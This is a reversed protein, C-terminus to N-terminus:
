FFDNDKKEVLDVKGWNLDDWISVLKDVYTGDFEAARDIYQNVFNVIEVPDEDQGKLAMTDFGFPNKLLYVFLIKDGDDLPPITDLKYLGLLKNYNMASKVHIPISKTAQAYKRMEKVSTPKMIDFLPAKMFDKRFLRTRENLEAATADHLIKVIIEWMEKRFIKPFSSRVTDFGKIEIEDVRLGKKSIIHMAYRKKASGWFARKGVMEQKIKWFHQGVCHYQRAYIAYSRNIIDELEKAIELTKDVMEDDTFDSSPFRHRILPEAEFFCSDTDQYICYDADPVKIAARYYKNGVDASWQVLTQGTLTVSEGNEKDYLRFSPLLLVGYLSNLKIKEILQKRDYYVYGASNGSNHEAEAQKRFRARNDGWTMLLTPIVGVHSTDYVIGASSISFQNKHLYDRLEVSTAFKISTEKNGADFLDEGVFEKKYLFLVWPCAVNNAFKHIDFNLIKGRKTEPSINLTKINNPYESELDLDYCFKYIGVKPPKVFAGIAKEADKDRTTTFAVKGIRKCHTLVAGDLYRSSFLYEDYPVHGDHCVGRAIEILDMKKDLAVMLEVDTVNYEIFGSINEAFLKDLSGTYTYKGRKLEKQCIYELSYSPEESYTFKKYLQMYDLFAVGAIKFTIDRKSVEKFDVIGIPSLKNAIKTGLVQSIRNYTYPIDFVEGNWATVITPRIKTWHTIFGQLLESETKFSIVNADITNGAINVSQKSNGIRSHEDLLLIVYKGGYYYAISTIRNAADKPTSYRIGKEIEIDFFLVRHDKSPEDSDCYMDVLVRTGVPVDHEFMAGIKVSEDSWKTVRKVRYGNLTEYDGTPDIIYAYQEYNIVKYPNDPEDTWIHCTNDRRNFYFNQYM